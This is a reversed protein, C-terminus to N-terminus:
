FKGDAGSEFAIDDVIVEAAIRSLGKPENTSSGLTYFGFTNYAAKKAAEFTAATGTSVTAVGGRVVQVLNWRWVEPDVDDRTLVLVNDRNPSISMGGTYWMLRRSAAMRAPTSVQSARTHHRM